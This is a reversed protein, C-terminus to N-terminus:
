LKLLPIQKIYQIKIKINTTITYLTNIKTIQTQSEDIGILNLKASNKVMNIIQNRMEAYTLTPIRIADNKLQRMSFDSDQLQTILISKLEPDNM